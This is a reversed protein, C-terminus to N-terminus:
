VPKGSLHSSQVVLAHGSPALLTFSSHYPTRDKEIADPALGAAAFRAHAADLDDVMLDFPALAGPAPTEGPFLLLHTGGRLEYLGFDSRRELERMGLTAFFAGMKAVDPVALAVHAVAVGPRLETEADALPAVGSAGGLRPLEDRVDTWDARSDFYVHMAPARDIPGELSALVVDVHDPQRTSECFLSSGCRGCFSRSGHESSHHRVLVDEGAELALRERPIGFWTVFAAGHNRRCMSCHCHACFLTPLTVRFRVAGCLCGGSVPEPM